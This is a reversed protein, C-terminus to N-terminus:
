LPRERRWVRLLQHRVTYSFFACGNRSCSGDAVEADLPAAPRRSCWRRCHLEVGRRQHLQGDCRALRPIRSESKGVEGRGAARRM